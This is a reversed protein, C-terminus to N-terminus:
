DSVAGPSAETSITESLLEVRRAEVLAFLWTYRPKKCQHLSGLAHAVRMGLQPLARELISLTRLAMAHAVRMGLQPLARELISLTRLAMAHAVRM